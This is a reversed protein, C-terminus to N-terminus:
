LISKTTHQRILKTRKLRMTTTVIPRVWLNSTNSLTSITFRCHSDLSLWRLFCVSHSSFYPIEFDDCLSCNNKYCSYTSVRSLAFLNRIQPLVNIAKRQCMWSEMRTGYQESSSGAVRTPRKFWSRLMSSWVVVSAWMMDPQPCLSKCRSAKLSSVSKSVVKANTSTNM